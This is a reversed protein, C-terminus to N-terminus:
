DDDKRLRRGSVVYEFLEKKSNRKRVVEIGVQEYGLEVMMDAYVRDAPVVVDYFKSNGIIYYLIGGPKVWQKVARLHVWMDEFYKEVYRAMLHANKNEASRIREIADRLYKPVFVNGSPEWEVLRSTAIGWTGGIAKWDLEGAERAEKLYGLWYMYPRLERIYSMRNPYPPSTIVLDFRDEDSLCDLVRSDCLITKGTGKPNNAASEAVVRAAASFAGIYEDEAAFLTGQSVLQDKFSMSQHNFAANSVKILVRCFTVYLLDRVGEKGNSRLDIEYKLRRLFHLAASNWWREINHIPPPEVKPGDSGLSRVISAVNEKFLTVDSPQYQRTKATGLWVLFPNIDVGVGSDGKEAACLTTTGTGAFPDLVRVGSGHASLISSVLKVSYAPTLRVWGHRGKKLNHRFTLDTRRQIIDNHM